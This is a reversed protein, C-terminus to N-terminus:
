AIVLRHIKRRFTLHLANWVFINYSNCLLSVLPRFGFEFRIEFEVLRSFILLRYIFVKDSYLMGMKSYM